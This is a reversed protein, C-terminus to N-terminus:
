KKKKLKKREKKMKVIRIFKELLERETVIGKDVLVKSETSGCLKLFAISGHKKEYNCAIKNCKKRLKKLTITKDTYPKTYNFTDFIEGTMKVYYTYNGIQIELANDPIDINIINKSEGLLTLTDINIKM